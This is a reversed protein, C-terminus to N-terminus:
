RDNLGTELRTKLDALFTAARAGDVARHDSTLTFEAIPAWKPTGENWIQRMTTGGVALISVQPPNIIATFRAVGFMGLNSLTFTGGMVEGISICGARVKEVLAKRREAIQNLNLGEAGHIVPVTLGKSAAVAFGLNVTDYEVVGQDEQWHANLGPHGALTEACDSLIVDTMTTGVSRRATAKTMDVEITVPFMPANWAKNMARVMLKETKGLIRLRGKPDATLNDSMKEVGKLWKSTRLNARVAM